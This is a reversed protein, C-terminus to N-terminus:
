GRSGRKTKRPPGGSRVKRPGRTRRPPADTTPLEAESRGAFLRAGRPAVTLELGLRELVQLVRDLAVTQKGRELESFFRNGVGALGAAQAQTLGAAKRRARVFAGITEASRVRTSVLEEPPKM